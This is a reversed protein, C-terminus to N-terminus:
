QIEIQRSAPTKVLKPVAINLIGNDLKAVVGAEDADALYISRQMSSFRRERHIYNKSDDTTEENHTVSLTLRGDELSLSVDEKKVGPLEAEIMYEKDDEKVDVKFTDSVLSRRPLWSDNFFDDLMNYFDGKLPLMSNSRNFPILGAM